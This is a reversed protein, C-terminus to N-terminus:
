IKDNLFSNIKECVYKIESKKLTPFTPLSLIQKCILETKPLKETNPLFIPQKHLPMPYHIGSEVGNNSLFKMIDDRNTARIVYLHYVHKRNKSEKPKIV